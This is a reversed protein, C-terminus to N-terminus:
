IIKILKNDVEVYVCPETPEIGEMTNGWCDSYYNSIENVNIRDEVGNYCARSVLRAAQSKSYAAVNIHNRQYKNGHGRGNWKKLEKAM